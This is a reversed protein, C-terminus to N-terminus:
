VEISTIRRIIGYGVLQMAVAVALMAQGAPENFMASMYGPNLIALLVGLGVPLLSLMMGTMRGQATYVGVQRQIKFRERITFSIQGLIEALNGGVERQISVATVFMRMDLLDVRRAMGQLSEHMGLGFKQQEFVERFEGAMPEAAEEAVMKLGASFPHGARIARSLLDIAEPLQEELRALRRAKARRLHLYPLSAGAAVAPLLVLGSGTLLMLVLGFVVGFSAARTLFGSVGWSVAAQELLSNVSRFRPNRELAGGASERLLAVTAPGSEEGAKGVMVAVADATRSWQRQRQWRDWAWAALLVTAAVGVFMIATPLWIMPEM